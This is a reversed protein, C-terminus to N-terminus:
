LRPTRGGHFSERQTQPQTDTQLTHYVTFINLYPIITIVPNFRGTTSRRGSVKCAHRCVRGDVAAATSRVTPPKRPNQALMRPNPNVRKQPCRTATPAVVAIRSRWDVLLVFPQRDRAVKNHLQFEHSNSLTM